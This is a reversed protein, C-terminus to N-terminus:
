CHTRFLPRSGTRVQSVSLGGQLKSVLRDEVVQAPTLQARDDPILNEEIDIPTLLSEPANPIGTGPATAASM